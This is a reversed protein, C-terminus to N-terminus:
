KSGITRTSQPLVASVAGMINMQYIVEPRDLCTLVELVKCNKMNTSINWKEFCKKDMESSLRTSKVTKLSVRFKTDSLKPFNPMSYIELFKKM